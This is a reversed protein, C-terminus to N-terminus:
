KGGSRGSRNAAAAGALGRVLGLGWAAHMTVLTPFTRWGGGCRATVAGIVATYAVLTTRAPLAHRGPIAALVATGVLGVPGLQRPRLSRPETVLMLAKFRGYDWYQRAIAQLSERPRYISWIAPDFVIRGGNRRLRYNLEFDQNRIFRESWGGLARLDQARWCGLNFTDVTLRGEGPKPRRWLRPNGIGFRSALAAAVARGWPGQADVHRWGGVGVAGVEEELARVSTEVYGPPMEAHGDFRVVIEGRAAALAANLAAPTRQRPNDVVRAGADAALRATEDSSRGDAVIVELGGAIRQALISRVCAGIHAAENRAPIIVSVRPAV